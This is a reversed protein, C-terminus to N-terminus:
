RLNGDGPVYCKRQEGGPGCLHEVDNRRNPERGSDLEARGAVCLQEFYEWKPGVRDLLAPDNWWNRKWRISHTGRRSNASQVGRRLRRTLLRGDNRQAFKSGPGTSDDRGGDSGVGGTSNGSAGCHQWRRFPTSLCFSVCRSSCQLQRRSRHRHIDRERLCCEGNEWGCRRGCGVM